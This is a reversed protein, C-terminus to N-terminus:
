AARVAMGAGSRRMFDQQKAETIANQLMAEYKAILGDDQMYRGAECMCAYLYIDPYLALLTNTTNTASLAEIKTQYVL